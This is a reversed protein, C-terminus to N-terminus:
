NLLIKFQFHFLQDMNDTLHKDL